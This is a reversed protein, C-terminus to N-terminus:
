TGSFPDVTDCTYGPKLSGGQISLQNQDDLDSYFLYEKGKDLTVTGSAVPTPDGEDFVEVAVSGAPLTSCPSCQGSLAALSVSGVKLTMTFDTGDTNSLGNCFKGRPLKKPGDDVPVVGGDDVTAAADTRCQPILSPCAGERHCYGATCTYGEPCPTNGRNCLFPIEGLDLSCGGLVLAGLVLAGLLAPLVRGPRRIHRRCTMRILSGASALSLM